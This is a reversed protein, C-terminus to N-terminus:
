APAPGTLDGYSAIRSPIMAGFRKLNDFEAPGRAVLADPQRKKAAVTESAM